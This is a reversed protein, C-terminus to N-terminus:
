RSIKLAGAAEGYVDVVCAPPESIRRASHKSIGVVFGAYFGKM